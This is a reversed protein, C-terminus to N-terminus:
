VSEKMNYKECNVAKLSAFTWYNDSFGACKGTGKSDPEMFYSCNNCEPMLKFNECINGEVLIEKSHFNCIGKAVDVPIFNLCDIHKLKLKNM